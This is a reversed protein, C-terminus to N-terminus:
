VRDADERVLQAFLDAHHEAIRLRRWAAPGELEVRRHTEVDTSDLRQLVADLRKTISHPHLDHLVLNRRRELLGLEVDDIARPDGPLAGHEVRRELPLDDLLRARVEAELVLPESLAPLVRGGEQALVGVDGL